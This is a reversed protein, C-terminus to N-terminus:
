IIGKTTNLIVRGKEKQKNIISKDILNAIEKMSKHIVENIVDNNKNTDAAYQNITINLTRLNPITNKLKLEDINSQTTINKTIKACNIHIDSQNSSM